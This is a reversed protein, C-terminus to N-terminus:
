SLSRLNGQNHSQCAREQSRLNMWSSEGKIFIRLWVELAALDSVDWAVHCDEANAGSSLQEVLRQTRNRDLLGYEFVMANPGFLSKLQQFERKLTSNVFYSFDSKWTRLRVTEPLVGAMAERLIGRPRGNVNQIEGPLQAMFQLLELDLMPFKIDVGFHDGIKFNWDLCDTHYRSRMQLYLDRQVEFHADSNFETQTKRDALNQRLWNMDFASQNAMTRRRWSRFRRVVPVLGPLTSRVIKSRIIQRYYTWEEASLWKPLERYHYALESWQGTLFLDALYGVSFLIQDGWHGTLIRTCRQVRAENFLNHTVGWLQDTFPMEIAGVQDYLSDVFGLHDHIPFRDITRGTAREVDYLFTREDCDALDSVYSIGEISQGTEKAINDAVCFVSSSDLGGSVSIATRTQMRRSVSQTFTRKFEQIAAEKSIVIPRRFTFDWYQVLTLAGIQDIHAFHSPPLRFIGKFLTEHTIELPGIQQSLYRALHGMNPEVSSSLNRLLESVHTAFLWSHGIDTYYLPVYGMKDSHVRICQNAQNVTIGVFEGDFKSLNDKNLEIESPSSYVEGWIRCGNEHDSFEM